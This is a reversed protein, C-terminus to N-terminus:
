RKRSNARKHPGGSGGASSRKRKHRVTKTWCEHIYHVIDIAFQEPNELPLQAANRKVSATLKEIHTQSDNSWQKDWSIRSRYLRYYEVLGVVESMLISVNTGHIAVIQEAAAQRQKKNAAWKTRLAETSLAQNTSDTTSAVVGNLGDSQFQLVIGKSALAALSTDPLPVAPQVGQPAQGDHQRVHMTRLLKGCSENVEPTWMSATALAELVIPITTSPTSTAAPETTDVNTLKQLVLRGISTAGGDSWTTLCVQENIELEVPVPLCGRASVLANLMTFIQVLHEPDVAAHLRRMLTSVTTRAQVSTNYFTPDFATKLGKAKAAKAKAAKARAAKARAAKARAAKAKAVKARAAKAKAADKNTENARAIMDDYSITGNKCTYNNLGDSTETYKTKCIKCLYMQLSKNFGNKFCLTSCCFPRQQAAATTGEMATRTRKGTTGMRGSAKNKTKDKDKGEKDNPLVVDEKKIRTERM